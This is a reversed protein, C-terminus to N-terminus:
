SVVGAVLWMLTWTGDINAVLAYDTPTITVLSSDVTLDEAGTGVNAIVFFDGDVADTPLTVARAAGGPDIRLYQADKSTLVLGGALTKVEFGGRLGLAATVTKKAGTNRAM